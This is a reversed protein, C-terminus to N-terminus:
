RFLISTVSFAVDVTANCRLDLIDFGTWTDLLIEHGSAIALNDSPNIAAGGTDNLYIDVESIGTFEVILSTPRFDAEWGGKPDLRCVQIAGLLVSDWQQNVDNWVGGGIASPDWFSDDFYSVFPSPGPPPGGPGPGPLYPDGPNVPGPPLDPWEYPPTPNIPDGPNFIDDPLDPFLDPDPPVDPDPWYFGPEGWYDYWGGPPEAGPGFYYILLSRPLAKSIPWPLLWFLLRASFERKTMAM